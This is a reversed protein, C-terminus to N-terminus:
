KKDEAEFEKKLFFSYGPVPRSTYVERLILAIPCSATFFSNFFM